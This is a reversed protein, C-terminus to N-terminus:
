TLACAIVVLWAATLMSPGHAMGSQRAVLLVCVTIMSSLLMAGLVGMVGGSLAVAVGLPVALKIDGGGIGPRNVPTALATVLYMGPWLMGWWGTPYVFCAVVAAAAAPLTLANPLRQERVDWVVLTVTWALALLVALVLAVLHADNATGGFM